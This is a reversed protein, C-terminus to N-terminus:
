KDLNTNTTPFSIYYISTTYRLHQLNPLNTSKIIPLLSPSGELSLLELRPLTFTDNLSGEYLVGQLWLEELGIQGRLWYLSSVSCNELCIVGRVM